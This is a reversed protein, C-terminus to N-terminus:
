LVLQEQINKKSSSLSDRSQNYSSGRWVDLWHIYLLRFPVLMHTAATWATTLYDATTSSTTLHTRLRYVAARTWSSSYTAVCYIYTTIGMALPNLSGINM